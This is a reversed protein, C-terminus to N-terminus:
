RTWLGVLDGEDAVRVRYREGVTTELALRLGEVDTALEVAARIRQGAPSYPAIRPDDHRVRLQRGRWAIVLPEPSVPSDSEQPLCSEGVGAM